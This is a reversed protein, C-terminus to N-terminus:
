RGKEKRAQEQAKILSQIRERGLCGEQPLSHLFDRIEDAIWITSNPGLRRRPPLIGQEEWRYVTPVSVGLFRALSKARFAGVEHSAM